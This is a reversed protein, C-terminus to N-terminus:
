DDARPMVVYVDKAAPVVRVPLVTEISQLADDIASARFIGTVRLDAIEPDNVVFRRGSYRTLDAAVLQLPADRYVLSGQRWAAVQDPDVSQVTSLRGQSTSDVAQGRRLEVVNGTSPSEVAVIGDAVRVRADRTDELRVEFRTGHVTVKVAAAHVRFPRREHAVDFYAEGRELTATRGLWTYDIRVRSDAGIVLTSGDPLRHSETAAVPAAYLRGSMREPMLVATVVLAAVGACAAGVALRPPAWRRVPPSEPLLEALEAPTFGRGVEDIALGLEEVQQYALQHRGDAALWARHADFEAPTAAGGHLRVHWARAERASRARIWRTLLWKMVPISGAM